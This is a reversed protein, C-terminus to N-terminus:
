AEAEKTRRRRARLKREYLRNAQRCPVCRCGFNRYASPTGHEQPGRERMARLHERMAQRCRKCHCRHHTYRAYTGHAPPGKKRLRLGLKWLALRLVGASAYGLREAEQATTSQGSVIRAHAEKLRVLREEQKRKGYHPELGFPAILQRVRERSVGFREGIQQLTLGDEAYLKSMQVARESPPKRADLWANALDVRTMRVESQATTNM